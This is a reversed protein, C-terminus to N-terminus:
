TSATVRPRKRTSPQSSDGERPRKRGTQGAGSWGSDSKAFPRSKKEKQGIKRQKKEIAKKVAKKGGEKAIVDLRARAKIDKKEAIM